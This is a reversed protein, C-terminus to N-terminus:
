GWVVVCLGCAELSTCRIILVFADGFSLGFDVGNLFFDLTFHVRCQGLVLQAQLANLKLSPIHLCEMAKSLRWFFRSCHHVTHHKDEPMFLGPSFGLLLKRVCTGENVSNQLKVQVLDCWLHKLTQLLECIFWFETYVGLLLNALCSIIQCDPKM